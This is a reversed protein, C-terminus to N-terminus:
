KEGNREDWTAQERNCQDGLWCWTTEWDQEKGIAEMYNRERKEKRNKVISKFHDLTGRM